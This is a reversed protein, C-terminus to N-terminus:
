LNSLDIGRKSNAQKAYDIRQIAGKKVWNRLALKYNKYKKGKAGLWNKMSDLESYVFSVPVKYDSAIELLDIEKLDKISSYNIKLTEIAKNPERKEKYIEKKIYGKREKGKRQMPQAMPQAMASSDEWRSKAGRKGSLSREKRFQKHEIMRKSFFGKKDQVFLGIEICYNIIAKLQNIALGYSLSLQAMCNNELIGSEEQAMAELIMFYIGYGEANNFKARLKLIRQDNASNYDHQFYFSDKMVKRETKM